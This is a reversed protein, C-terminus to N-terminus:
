PSWWNASLVLLCLLAISDEYYGSDTFRTADYLDNLFLQLSPAAMAAVAFPAIFAGSTYNSNALPTGNLQYGSKIAYPDQGSASALWSSILQSQALASSDGSVLADTGLRWPLRCANYYYHGDHSGELFGPWAPQLPPGAGNAPVMFDPLLGTPAAHDAHMQALAAACALRVQRWTSDGSALEFARFHGLMFDSSRPTWQNHPAGNPQVWDGLMPLRSDPGIASALLGDMVRLAESGYDFRGRDGWQAQALLLAYAMDCDGDFACSDGFGDGSEDANVWWDKLRADSASPHDTAFEWLGDFLTQAAPDDGAMLATLLLGYGQGESVTAADANRGMRVRYRPHGDATTGASALYHTKWAAYFGRVHEDQQNQSYHNPRLTSPAYSVHQPFPRAARPTP